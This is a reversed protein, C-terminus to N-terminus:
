RSAGDPQHGALLQERELRIAELGKRVQESTMSSPDLTNVTTTAAPLPAGDEGTLELTEPMRVGLRDLYEVMAWRTGRLAEKRLRVFVAQAHPEEESRLTLLFARREASLGCPNGSVGKPFPRGRGRRKRRRKSSESSGAM